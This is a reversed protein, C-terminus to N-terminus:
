VVWWHKDKKDNNDFIIEFVVNMKVRASTVIHTIQECLTDRVGPVDRTYTGTQTIVEPDHILSLYPGDFQLQIYDM